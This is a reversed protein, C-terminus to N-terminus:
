FITCDLCSGLHKNNNNNNYHLVIKTNHLLGFLMIKVAILYFMKNLCVCSSISRCSIMMIRHENYADSAHDIIVYPVWPFMLM